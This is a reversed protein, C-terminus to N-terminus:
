VIARILQEGRRVRLGDRRNNLYRENAEEPTLHIAESFGMARLRAKLDASV